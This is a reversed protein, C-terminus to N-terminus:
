VRAEPTDKLFALMVAQAVAVAGFKAVFPQLLDSLRITDGQTGNDEPKLSVQGPKVKPTDATWTRTKEPKYTKGLKERYHRTCFGKAMKYNECGDVSCQKNKPAAM